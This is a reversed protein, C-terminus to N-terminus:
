RTRPLPPPTPPPASVEYTHGDVGTRRTGQGYERARELPPQLPEPSVRAGLAIDKKSLAKPPKPPKPPARPKPAAKAGGGGAGKAGKPAKAGGATAKSGGPPAKAGGGTVKSGGPELELKRPATAIMASRSLSDGHRGLMATPVGDVACAAPPMNLKAAAGLVGLAAVADATTANANANANATVSTKPSRKQNRAKAGKSPSRGGGSSNRASPSAKESGGISSARSAGKAATAPPPLSTHVDWTRSEALWRWAPRLESAPVSHELKYLTASVQHKPPNSGEQHSGEQHSAEQNSAEQNSAEQKSAEQNSAEQNSGEQHSAEKAGNSSPAGDSSPGVSSSGGNSSGGNSSGGCSPGGSSPGASPAKGGASPAKAAAAKGAAAKGAAAKGAPGKDYVVEWWGEQFNIELPAGKKLENVFDAKHAPPRPRVDKVDVWDEWSSGDEEKFSLYCLRLRVSARAERAELM